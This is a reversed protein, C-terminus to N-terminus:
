FQSTLRYVQFILLSDFNIAILIEDVKIRIEAAGAEKAPVARSTAIDKLAGEDNL